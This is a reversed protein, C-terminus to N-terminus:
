GNALYLFWYSEIPFGPKVEPEWLFNGQVFRSKLNKDLDELAKRAQEPIDVADDQLITLIARQRIQFAFNPPIGKKTDMESLYLSWQRLRYTWEQCAKKGWNVIWKRRVQEIQQDAQEFDPLNIGGKVAGALRLRSLQINGLTLRIEIEGRRVQGGVSWFLDKSLLYDELIPLSATILHRDSSLTM